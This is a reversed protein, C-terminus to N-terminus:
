LAGGKDATAKVYAPKKLELQDLTAQYQLIIFMAYEKTIYWQGDLIAFHRPYKQKRRQFARDHMSKNLMKIVSSYPVLFEGEITAIAEYSLIRGWERQIRKFEKVINM